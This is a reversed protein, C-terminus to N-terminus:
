NQHLYIFLLLFDNLAAYTCILIYLLHKQSEYHILADNLNYCKLFKHMFRKWIFNQWRRTHNMYLKYVIHQVEFSHITPLFFFSVGRNIEICIIM